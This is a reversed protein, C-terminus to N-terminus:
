YNIEIPTQPIVLTADQKPLTIIGMVFFTDIKNVACLFCCFHFYFLSSRYWRNPLNQQKTPISTLTEVLTPICKTVMIIYKDCFHTLPITLVCVWLTIHFYGVFNDFILKKSGIKTSKPKKDTLNNTSDGFYCRKKTTYDYKNCFHIM